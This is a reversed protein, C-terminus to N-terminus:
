EEIEVPMAIQFYGIGKCAAAIAEAGEKTPYVAAHVKGLTSNFVNIYVTRKVPAMMLDCRHKYSTASAIGEASLHLLYEKGLMTYAAILSKDGMFDFCLIRAPYGERTVVQAGAKAAELNFPKLKM